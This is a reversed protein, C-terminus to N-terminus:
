CQDVRARPVRSLLWVALAVSGIVGLSIVPAAAVLLFGFLSVPNAACFLSGTVPLDGYRMIAVAAAVSQIAVMLVLYWTNDGLWENPIM